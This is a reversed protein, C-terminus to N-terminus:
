RNVFELHVFKFNVFPINGDMGTVETAVYDCSFADVAATFTCVHQKKSGQHVVGYHSWRHSDFYIQGADVTLYFVVSLYTCFQLETFEQIKM